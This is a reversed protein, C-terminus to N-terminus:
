GDGCGKKSRIGTFADQDIAEVRGSERGAVGVLGRMRIRLCGCAM